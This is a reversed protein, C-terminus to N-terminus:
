AVERRTEPLLMDLSLALLALAVFIGFREVGRNQARNELRSGERQQIQGAISAIEAGDAAARWYMGGTREAITQLTNEDLASLVVDGNSASKYGVINGSDDLIPVAEGRTGGYGITYITVNQQAAEDAARLPDGEFNEGDSMLVVIRQAARRQDFAKSALRLAAEIDTGQRSIAASSAAKIFTEASALDTTLPFQVFATGAFLILGVENGQLQEVLSWLGLKARELRSPLVDAANMSNSVDLAVMVAVGQTEIVEVDVGWMPRAVAVILLAVAALWLAAKAWRRAPSVPTMVRRIVSADGIRRLASQRARERWVLFGTVAPLLLLLLLAAPYVFTM